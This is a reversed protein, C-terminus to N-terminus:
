GEARYSSMNQPQRPRQFLLGYVLGPHAGLLHDTMYVGLDFLTGPAPCLDLPWNGLSMGPGSCYPGPVSQPGKQNRYCHTTRVGVDHRSKPGINVDQGQRRHM